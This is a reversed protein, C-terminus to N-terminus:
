RSRDYCFYGFESLSESIYTLVKSAQAYTKSTEQHFDFDTFFISDPLEKQLNLFHKKFSKSLELESTKSNSLLNIINIPGYKSILNQFHKEFAPETANFSRTIQVKPSILATDQEWFLPISGRIQTFAFIHNNDNLILETEVFNAVNGDDDVGRVNFRTGARKWSQKSIITLISHRNNM